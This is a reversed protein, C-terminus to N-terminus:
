GSHPRQGACIILASLNVRRHLRRAWGASGVCEALPDLQESAGTNWTMRTQAWVRPLRRRAEEADEFDWYEGLPEDPMPIQSDEPLETEACEYGLHGM